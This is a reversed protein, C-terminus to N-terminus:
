KRAPERAQLQKIQQEVQHSLNDRQIKAQAETDKRAEGRQLQEDRRRHEAKTLFEKREEKKIAEMELLQIKALKEPDIQAQDSNGQAIAKIEQLQKIMFKMNEAYKNYFRGLFTHDKMKNLHQESHTLCNVGFNFAEMPDLTQERVMEFVRNLKSFHLDLHITPNDTARYVIEQTRWFMDNEIAAIREDQFSSQQDFLPPKLRNVERRPFGLSLLLMRELRRVEFPTESTQMALRIAETDRVIRDIKISSIADIIANIEKDKSKNDKGQLLGRLNWRLESYFYEKVKRAPTNDTPKMKTIRKIMVLFMQGWDTFKINLKADVSKAADAGVQGVEDSTPRSSLKGIVKSDFQQTDRQYGAEHFQMSLIHPQLDQRPQNPAFQYGPPMMHFGAHVGIKFREASQGSPMVIAPSGALTLKDDLNNQNKNYRVSDEVAFKAIGRYDQIYSDPSIASDRIVSLKDSPKIVGYNKQYLLHETVNPGGEQSATVSTGTASSTSAAVATENSPYYVAYTETYTNDLERNWIKAIRMNDSNTIVNSSNKQYEAFVEDWCSVRRESNNTKDTILGRYQRWLIDEVGELIWNTRFSQKEGDGGHETRDNQQGRIKDWVRWLKDAKIVDFIMWTKIDDVRSKDEFAISLPHVPMGLYDSDGECTVSCCGYSYSIYEIKTSYDSFRPDDSFSNVFVTSVHEAVFDRLIEDDLFELIPTDKDDDKPRRFETGLMAISRMVEGVNESTGQEIKARAKGFNYNASWGLNAARLKEPDKPKKGGIHEEANKIVRWYRAHSQIASSMIRHAVSADNILRHKPFDIAQLDKKVTESM